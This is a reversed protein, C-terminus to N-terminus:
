DPDTLAKTAGDRGDGEENDENERINGKKREKIEEIMLQRYLFDEEGKCGESRKDKGRKRKRTREEKGGKREGKRGEKRDKEEQRGRIGEKM